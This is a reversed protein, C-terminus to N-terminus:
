RGFLRRSSRESPSGQNTPPAPWSLDPLSAFYQGEASATATYPTDEPMQTHSIGVPQERVSPDFAPTSPYGPLRGSLDYPCQQAQQQSQQHTSQHQVLTQWAWDPTSTDFASTSVSGSGCASNPGASSTAPSHTFDNSDVSPYTGTTSLFRPDLTSTNLHDSMALEITPYPPKVLSLSSYSLSSYLVKICRESSFIGHLPVTPWPIQLHTGRLHLGRCEVQGM